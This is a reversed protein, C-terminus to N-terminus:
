PSCGYTIAFMLEIMPNSILPVTPIRPEMAATLSATQTFLLENLYQLQPICYHLQATLYSAEHRRRGALRVELLIISIFSM